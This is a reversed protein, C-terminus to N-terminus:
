EEDRKVITLKHEHKDSDYESESYVGLNFSHSFGHTHRLNKLNELSFSHEMELLSSIDHYHELTTLGAGCPPPNILEGRSEGQPLDKVEYPEEVGHGCCLSSYGEVYGLCADYGEPTPMRGCKVCPREESEVPTGDDYVWQNNIFTIRNGRSYATIM